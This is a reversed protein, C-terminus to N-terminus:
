WLPEVTRPTPQGFRRFVRSPRPSLEDVRRMPAGQLEEELSTERSEDQPLGHSFPLNLYPNTAPVQLTVFLEMGEVAQESADPFPLIAVCYGGQPSSEPGTEPFCFLPHGDLQGVMMPQSMVPVSHTTGPFLHEPVVQSEVSTAMGLILSPVLAWGVHDLNFYM